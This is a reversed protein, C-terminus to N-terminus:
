RDATPAILGDALLSADLDAVLARILRRVEDAAPPPSAAALLAEVRAALDPPRRPCRDEIWPVLRKEGPHTERNLAFLLDVYSALFATVRHQVAIPDGRRMADEIQGGFSFRSRSLVPQNKAVVARRLPEPYPVRARRQLEAFWGGPDVLVRATRVNHWVATSYGLTAEHRDLVRSLEGEIWGPARYTVDIARGSPQDIWADGPEWFRHDLEVSAHPGPLLTRSALPPPPDAYVYFDVDSDDGDRGTARSGGLVVAVVGPLAGLRAALDSIPPDLEGQSRFPAPSGGM